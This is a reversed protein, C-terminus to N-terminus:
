REPRLEAQFGADRLSKLVEEPREYGQELAVRAQFLDKGGSVSQVGSIKGVVGRLKEWCNECALGSVELLWKAAQKQARTCAAACAFLEELPLDAVWLQLRGESRYVVVSTGRSEFCDFSLDGSKKLRGASLDIGPDKMVVYSLRGDPRRYAVQAIPRGQAVPLACCCGGEVEFGFDELRPLEVSVFIEDRFFRQIEEPTRSRIEIPRAASSINEHAQITEAIVTPLGLDTTPWFSVIMVIVAAAVSVGAFARSRVRLAWWFGQGAPRPEGPVQRVEGEAASFEELKGLLAKRSQEPFSPRPVKASLVAKVARQTAFKQRCSECLDLHASIEAALKVDLEDDVFPDLYTRAEHCKM